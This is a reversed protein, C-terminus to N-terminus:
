ITYALQIYTSETGPRDRMRERHSQLQIMGWNIGQQYSEFFAQRVTGQFKPRLLKQLIKSRAGFYITDQFFTYFSLIQGEVGLINDLLKQRHDKSLVALFIIGDNILKKINDADSTSYQPFM